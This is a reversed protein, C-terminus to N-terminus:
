ATLSRRRRVTDIAVALIIIAGKVIRIAAPGAKLVSLGNNVVGIILTGIIVGILNGRGGFLSVGGITVAAISDLELGELGMMSASMVRGLQIFAALGALFGAIAYVSFLVRKINIGSLWASVPNGGTAYISRGYTTYNLVYYAVIAVAIYIIVPVPVVGVTGQGWWALHGPLEGISRGQIIEFAAGDTIQWLGLTSILAPIGVRSVLASNVTGWGLGALLMILVGLGAPWPNSVISLEGSTMLAAGLVSCFLANGGVSVDIGATLIVMAQGIAAVGRISSQLLVNSANTVSLSGGRTLGGIGFILALLVIFLASNEHRLLSRARGWIGPSYPKPQEV